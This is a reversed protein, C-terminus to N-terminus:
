DRKVTEDLAAIRMQECAQAFLSLGGKSLKAVDVGLMKKVLTVVEGDDM